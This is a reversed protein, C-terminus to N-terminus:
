ELGEIREIGSEAIGLVHGSEQELSISLSGSGEESVELVDGTFVNGDIDVVRARLTLYDGINKTKNGGQSCPRSIRGM